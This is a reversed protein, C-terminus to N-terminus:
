IHFCIKEILTTGSKPLGVCLIRKSQSYKSQSDVALDHKLENILQIPDVVISKLGHVLPRALGFFNLPCLINYKFKSIKFM